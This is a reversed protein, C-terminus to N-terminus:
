QYVTDLFLTLLLPQGEAPTSQLLKYAPLPLWPADAINCPMSNASASTAQCLQM